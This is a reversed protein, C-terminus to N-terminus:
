SGATPAGGSSSGSSSSGNTGNGSATNSPPYNTYASDAIVTVGNFEDQTIDTGTASNLRGQIPFDQQMQAASPDQQQQTGGQDWAQQLGSMPNSGGSGLNLGQGATSAVNEARSADDQAKWVDDKAGKYFSGASNLFGSLPGASKGFVQQVLLDWMPFFTNRFLLAELYPLRGLYVEMSVAKQAQATSRIADLKSALDGMAFKLIPDLGPALKEALESKGFDGAKSMVQGSTVPKGDPPSLLNSGGLSKQLDTLFSLQSTLLDLVRDLLAERGAELIESAPITQTQDWPLLDKYIERLLDVDTEMIESVITKVFGPLAFGLADSFAQAALDGVQSAPAPPQDQAPKPADTAFAADLQEAAPYDDTPVDLFKHAGQAAADEGRNELNTPLSSLSSTPDSSDFLSQNSTNGDDTKNFWVPFIPSKNNQIADITVDHCAKEIALECHTALQGYVAVYIDFVKTAIGQITNFVPGVGPISGVASSLQSLLGGGAANQGAPPNAVKQLVQQYNARAQALDEGAQHAITYTMAAVNLNGGVTKVKSNEDNLDTSKVSASSAPTSSGGGLLSSAESMAAGMMASANGSLAGENQEREQLVTQTAAVFGSLLLTERELAGRYMVARSGPTAPDQPLKADNDDQISNTHGFNTSYDPHVFGFHIFEILEGTDAAGPDNPAYSGGAGDPAQGIPDGKFYQPTADAAPSSSGSGGGSLASSVSTLASDLFSM